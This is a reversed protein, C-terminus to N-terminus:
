NSLADIISQMVRPNPMSIVQLIETPIGPVDLGEPDNQAGALGSRFGHREWALAQIEPDLLAEILDQSRPELAILPHSSWVTPLPYLVRIRDKVQPWLQPNQLSFEIAQSEYGVVLPKAGVGIKLYSEFVDASSSEMYGLKGFYEVVEPLVAPLTTEDVVQGGNLLNALLGSWMNGSNSKTPDTSAVTVPGYLEPLGIDSWTTGQTVYGILKQMDVIYYTDGQKEVIGQYVLADTVIDWSYIVIPSNFIVEAQVSGEHQMKYLELAVQSSPWLFDLGETPGEVMEISGAKIADLTIGYKDLLEATVTEDALFGLKEGGVYGKLTVEAKGGSGPLLWVLLATVVIVVFVAIGIIRNRM